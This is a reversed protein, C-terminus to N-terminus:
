AAPTTEQLPLPRQQLRGLYWAIACLLALSLVNLAFVAMGGEAFSESVIRLLSEFLSYSLYTAIWIVILCILNALLPAAIGSLLPLLAFRTFGNGGAQRAKSYLYASLGGILLPMLLQGIVLMRNFAEFDDRSFSIRNENAFWPLGALYVAQVLAIHVVVFGLAFSAWAGARQLPIDTHDLPSAARAQRGTALFYLGVPLAAWALSSIYLTPLTSWYAQMLLMPLASFPTTPQLRILEELLPAQLSQLFLVRAVVSWALTALVMVLWPRWAPRCTALGPRRALVYAAIIFVLLTEIVLVPVTNLLLQFQPPIYAFIPLPLLPKDLLLWGMFLNISEPMWQWTWLCLDPLIRILLYVTALQVARRRALSSVHTMM